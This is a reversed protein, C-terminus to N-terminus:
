MATEGGDVVLVTGTIFSADDSLLFCIPAALEDPEAMRQQMNAMGFQKAGEEPTGGRSAILPETMGTLVRGPAVTNVRVTPAGERAIQRSFGIIAAKAAGYPANNNNAVLAAASAVNVISGGGQQRMMPLVYKCVLFTGGAHVKMMRDWDEVTWEEIPGFAAHGGANLVCDIAGFQERTAEVASRVSAEDAVDCGLGIAGDIDAAIENARSADLDVVAVRGGGSAFRRATAAGIGSGGGTALLVKGEFNM